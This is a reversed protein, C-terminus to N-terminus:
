PAQAPLVLSYAGDPASVAQGVLRAGEGDVSYAEITAALPRSQDGSFLRGFLEFPADLEVVISERVVSTGDGAREGLVLGRVLKTPLKANRPPTLTLDYTGRPLAVSFHGDADTTTRQRLEEAVLADKRRVAEVAVDGVGVLRSRVLGFLAVRAECRFDYGEVAADALLEGPGGAPPCLAQSVGSEPPAVALAAYVEPFLSAEYRGDEDAIVTVSYAFRARDVTHFTVRAGPLAELGGDARRARVRGRVRVPAEVTAV